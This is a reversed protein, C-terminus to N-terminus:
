FDLDIDDSLVLLDSKPDMKYFSVIPGVCQGSLNMYTLPKVLLVKEGNRM